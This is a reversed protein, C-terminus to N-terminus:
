SVTQEQRSHSAILDFLRRSSQSVDFNAAFCSGARISMAQKESASLAQWRSLLDIIGPIDDTGVLGAGARDIDPWIDVQNSILVPIGCALAEAVSVGFNEQHSPLLYAEAGRILRWKAADYIPGTWVIHSDLGLQSARTKLRNVFREDGPGAIVLATHPFLHKVRSFSEILLDIGKKATIRGLFLLYPRNRLDPHSSTLRRIISEKDEANGPPPPAIGYGVVAPHCCYPRFSNHAATKEQETTFLVATADRMVKHEFFRWYLIKKIQKLRYREFWPHLTGHTFVFYPVKHKVAARSAAWGFYMWIGEIVVADFGRVNNSLWKPLAGSFGYTSKAAGLAHVPINWAALWPADSNDLCVIESQIGMKTAASAVAMLGHVPGGWAPDLTRIVHLIRM